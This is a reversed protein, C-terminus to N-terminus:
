PRREKTQGDHSMAELNKRLDHRLRNYPRILDHSGVIPMDNKLAEIVEIITHSAKPNSLFQFHGTRGEFDMGLYAHGVAYLTAAKVLDSTSYPEKAVECEVVAPHGEEQTQGM